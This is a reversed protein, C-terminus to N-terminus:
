INAPTRRSSGGQAAVEVHGHGGGGGPPAREVEADVRRRNNSPEGGQGQNSESHVLVVAPVAGETSLPAGDGVVGGECDQHHERVAAEVLADLDRPVEVTM